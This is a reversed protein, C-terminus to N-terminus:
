GATPEPQEPVPVVVVEALVGFGRAAAAALTALLVLAVKAAAVVVSLQIHQWRRGALHALGVSVAQQAALGQERQVLQEALASRIPKLGVLMLQM